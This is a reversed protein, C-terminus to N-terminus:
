EDDADVDDEPPDLRFQTCTCRISHDDIDVGYCRGDHKFRFHGCLCLDLAVLGLIYPDSM